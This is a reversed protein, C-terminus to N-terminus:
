CCNSSPDCCNSDASKPPEVKVFSVAEKAVPANCCDEDDGCCSSGEAISLGLTKSLQEASPYVGRFYLEGDIFVLPLGAEGQTELAAKVEPKNAFALPDQALNHRTVSVENSKIKEIAGAFAALAEDPSPGCVGTSCCMAPDYIEITKM